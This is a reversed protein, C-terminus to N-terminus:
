SSSSIRFGYPMEFEHIARLVWEESLGLADGVQRTTAQKRGLIMLAEIYSAVAAAVAEEHTTARRRTYTRM